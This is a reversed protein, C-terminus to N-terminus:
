AEVCGMSGVTLGAKLPSDDVAGPVMHRHMHTKLANRENVSEAIASRQSLATVFRASQLFARPKIGYLSASIFGLM